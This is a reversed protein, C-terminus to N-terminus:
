PREEPLSTAHSRQRSQAGAFFRRDHRDVVAALYEAFDVPPTGYEPTGDWSSRLWLPHAGTSMPLPFAGPVVGFCSRKSPPAFLIFQPAFGSSAEQRCLGGGSQSGTSTSTM